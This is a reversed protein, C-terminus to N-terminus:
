RLEETTVMIIKSLEKLILCKLHIKVLLKKTCSLAGAKPLINIFGSHNMQANKTFVALFTRSKSFNCTWLVEYQQNM